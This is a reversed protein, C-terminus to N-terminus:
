LLAIVEKKSRKDIAYDSIYREFIGRIVRDHYITDTVKGLAQTFPEICKIFTNTDIDGDTVQLLEELYVDVVQYRPGNPVKNM